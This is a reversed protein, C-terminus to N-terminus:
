SYLHYWILDAILKPVFIHIYIGSCISPTAKNLRCLSPMQLALARNFPLTSVNMLFCFCRLDKDLFEQLNSCCSLSPFSSMGQVFPQCPILVMLTRQCEPFIPSNGFSQSNATTFGCLVLVLLLTITSFGNCSSGMEKIKETKKTWIVNKKFFKKQELTYISSTKMPLTHLSSAHLTCRDHLNNSIRHRCFLFFSASFMSNTLSSLSFEHIEKRKKVM